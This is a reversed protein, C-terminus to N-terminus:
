SLHRLRKRALRCPYIRGSALGIGMAICGNCRMLYVCDRCVRYDEDSISRVRLMVPSNRWIDGLSTERVNGAEESFAGCPYVSGDPGISMVSKGINCLGPSSDTEMGAIRRLREIESDSIQLSLPKRKGSSEVFVGDDHRFPIELKDALRYMAALKDRNPKMVVTKASLKVGREKLMKIAGLLKKFSGSCGTISDHSTEDPGLITTEVSNLPLSALLDALSKTLLTLNSFLKVSFGTKEVASSIIDPFDNKLLPEGGSLTLEMAGLSALEDLVRKIEETSMEASSCKVHYCHICDLNCKATLELSVGYPVLRENM